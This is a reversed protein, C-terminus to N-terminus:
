TRELFLVTVTLLEVGYLARNAYQYVVALDMSSTWSCAERAAGSTGMPGLGGGAPWKPPRWSKPSILLMVERETRQM